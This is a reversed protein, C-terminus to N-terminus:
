PKPDAAAPAPATAAPPNPMTFTKEGPTGLTGLSPQDVGNLKLKVAGAKGARITMNKAAEFSKASGAPMIGEFVKKGDSIIRVWVNDVATVSLALKDPVVPAKEPEPTKEVKVAEEEAKTHLLPNTRPLEAVEKQPKAQREVKPKQIVEQGPRHGWGMIVAVALGGMIVLLLSVYGLVRLGSKKVVPASEPEQKYNWVSEYKMLLDASNIGLYNAYDRLFARAYVRNPFVDFRDEEIASLNSTTIKTAEYVDDLSLKRREREERLVQGISEM